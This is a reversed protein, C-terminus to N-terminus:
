LRLWGGTGNLSDRESVRSRLQASSNIKVKSVTLRAVRTCPSERRQRENRVSEAVEVSCEVQEVDAIEAGGAVQFVSTVPAFLVIVSLVAAVWDFAMLRLRPERKSLFNQMRSKGTLSFESYCDIRYFRNFRLM